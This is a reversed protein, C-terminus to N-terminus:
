EYSVDHNDVLIAHLPNVTALGTPPTAGPYQLCRFNRTLPFRQGRELAAEAPIPHCCTHELNLSYATGSITKTFYTDAKYETEDHFDDLLAITTYDYVDFGLTLESFGNQQPEDTTLHVATSSSQTQLQDEYPRNVVFSYNNVKVQDGEALAGGAVANIRFRMERFTIRMEETKYTVADFETSTNTADGAINITNGIMSVVMQMFGDGDPELTWGNVKLSPWEIIDANSIEMAMCSYLAAEKAWTMAHTITPASGTETDDGIIGALFRWLMGTRRLPLTITPNATHKVLDMHELEGFNAVSEDAIVDGDLVIKDISTPMIGDLAALAVATGWAAGKSLGVITERGSRGM